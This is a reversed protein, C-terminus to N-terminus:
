SPTKFGAASLHGATQKSWLESYKGGVALLDTHTGREIIKGKKIFLIHDPDVITSLRHAIVFSTQEKRSAVYYLMYNGNVCVEPETTLAHLVDCSDEV